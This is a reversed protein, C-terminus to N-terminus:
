PHISVLGEAILPYIDDKDFVDVNPDDGWLVLAITLFDAIRVKAGRREDGEGQGFNLSRVREIYYDGEDNLRRGDPDTVQGLFPGFNADYFADIVAVSYTGTVEYVQRFNPIDPQDGIVQIREAGLISVIEDYAERKNGEPTGADRINSGGIGIVRIHEVISPDDRLAFLLKFWEGGVSVVLTEDTCEDRVRHALEIIRAPGADGWYVDVERRSVEVIRNILVESEPILSTSGIGLLNIRDAWGLVISLDQVGNPDEGPVGLDDMYYLPQLVSGLCGGSTDPADNGGDAPGGDDNTETDARSADIPQRGDVGQADAARSADQGADNRASDDGCAASGSAVLLSLIIRSARM